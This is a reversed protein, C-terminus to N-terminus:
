IKSRSTFFLFDPHGPVRLMAAPAEDYIELDIKTRTSEACDLVIAAGRMANEKKQNLKDKFLSLLYVLRQTCVLHKSCLFCDDIM